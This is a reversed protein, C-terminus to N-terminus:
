FRWAIVYFLTISVQGYRDCGHFVQHISRISKSFDPRFAVHCSRRVCKFYDYRRWIVRWSFLRFFYFCFSWAFGDFIMRSYSRSGRNNPLQGSELLPTPSVRYGQDLGLKQGYSYGLRTKLRPALRHKTRLKRCQKSKAAGEGGIRVVALLHLAPQLGQEVRPPRAVAVTQGSPCPWVLGAAWTTTSLPTTSPVLFQFCFRHQNTLSRNAM